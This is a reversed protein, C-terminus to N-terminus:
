SYMRIHGQKHCASCTVQHKTPQLISSNVHSTLQDNPDSLPMRHEIITPPFKLPYHKQIINIIEPGYEMVRTWKTERELHETTKIKVYRACDVIRDRTSVGMVLGPGLNCAHGPGYEKKAQDRQWLELDLCLPADQEGIDKLTPLWSRCSQCPTKIVTSMYSTSLTPEHIDCCLMALVPRCRECGNDLM